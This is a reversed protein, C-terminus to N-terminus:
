MTDIDMRITACPDQEGGSTWISM